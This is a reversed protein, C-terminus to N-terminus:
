LASELHNNSQKNIVCVYEVDREHESFSSFLLDERPPIIYTGVDISYDLIGLSKISAELEKITLMQAIAALYDQALTETEWRAEGIREKLISWDADRRLDRLYLKGGPMLCQYMKEIAKQPKHFRHLANRCIVYNVDSIKRVLKPLEYVSGQKFLVRKQFSFLDDNKRIDYSAIKQKELFEGRKRKRKQEKKDKNKGALALMKPSLDIGIIKGSTREALELSLLGSGCGVDVITGIPMKRDQYNVEYCGTRNKFDEAIKKYTQGRHNNALHDYEEAVKGEMAEKLTILRGSSSKGYLQRVADQLTDTKEILTRM